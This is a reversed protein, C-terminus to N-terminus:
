ISFPDHSDFRELKQRYFTSYDHCLNLLRKYRMIGISDRPDHNENLYQIEQYLRDFSDRKLIPEM